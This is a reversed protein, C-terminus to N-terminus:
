LAAAGFRARLELAETYIHGLDLLNHRKLGTPICLSFRHTTENLELMMLGVCKKGIRPQMVDPICFSTSPVWVHEVGDREFQLSQHTHGSAVFRLDHKKLLAFLQERNDDPIYRTGKVDPGGAIPLIPKHLMMGVPGAHDALVAELWSFQNQEANSCTGFLMANLGVILWANENFSWHDAGFIQRYEDLRQPNLPEEAVAGAQPPNDGIDHNGPLFLVSGHGRSLIDHAHALAARDHVGDATIDGLHVLRNVRQTDLWSHIALWNDTLLTDNPSLHTDTVLAIKM